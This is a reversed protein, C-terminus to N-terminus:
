VGNAHLIARIRSVYYFPMNILRYPKNAPAPTATKWVFYEGSWVRVATVFHSSYNVFSHLSRHILERDYM